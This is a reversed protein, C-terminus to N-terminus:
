ARIYCMQSLIQIVLNNHVVSNNHVYRIKFFVQDDVVYDLTLAKPLEENVYLVSYVLSSINKFIVYLVSYALPSVDKFFTESEKESVALKKKGGKLNHM